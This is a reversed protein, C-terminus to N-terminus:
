LRCTISYVHHTNEIRQKSEEGEVHEVVVVNEKIEM